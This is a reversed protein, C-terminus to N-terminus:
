RIRDASRVMEDDKKIFTRALMFLVFNALTIWTGPASVIETQMYPIAILYASYALSLGAGITCLKIQLTRNRFQTMTGVAFMGLLIQGILPVPNEFNLFTVPVNEHEPMTYGAYPVFFLTVLVADVLLLFLSQIRQIM